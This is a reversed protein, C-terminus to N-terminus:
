SAEEGEDAVIYGLGNQLSNIKNRFDMKQLETMHCLENRADM